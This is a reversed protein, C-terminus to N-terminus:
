FSNGNNIKHLLDELSIWCNSGKSINSKGELLQLNEYHGIIEPDIENKFGEFISYIHDLHMQRSRKNLEPFMKLYRGTVSWVQRKYIEFPTRDEDSLYSGNKIRTITTKKIREEISLEFPNEVGYTKLFYEKRKNCLEDSKSANDVGYKKIMGEKLKDQSNKM